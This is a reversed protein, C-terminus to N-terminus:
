EVTIVQMHARIEGAELRQISRKKEFTKDTDEDDALGVMPEMCLFPMRGPKTWFIIHTFGTFDLTTAYSNNRSKLTVKRSKLSDTDFMWAGNEFIGGIFLDQQKELGPQMENAILGNRVVHIPATEPEEFHLYLDKLMDDSEEIPVNYTTHAGTCYYMQETGLNEVEYTIRLCNGEVQYIARFGFDFPYHEKTFANAKTYLVVKDKECSAVDFETERIFGHNEMNYLKGQIYTEDDKLISVIPFCISTRRPWYEKDYAWIHEKGTKKNFLRELTAAYTNIQVLINENEITILM